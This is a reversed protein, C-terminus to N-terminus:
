VTVGEGGGTGEGAAKEFKFVPKYDAMYISDTRLSVTSSRETDFSSDSGCRYYQQAQAAAPTPDVLGISRRLYERVSECNCDTHKLCEGKLQLVETRLCQVEAHLRSNSAALERSADSLNKELQRKKERCKSAAVRNRELFQKRKREGESDSQDGGLVPKYVHRAKRATKKSTPPRQQARSSQQGLQTPVSQRQDIVEESSMKITKEDKVQEAEATTWGIFTETSGIMDRPAQDPWKTAFDFPRCLEGVDPELTIPTEISLIEERAFPLFTTFM